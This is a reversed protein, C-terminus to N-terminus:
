FSCFLAACCEGRAFPARRERLVMPTHMCNVLLDSHVQGLCGIVPVNM